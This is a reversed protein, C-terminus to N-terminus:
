FTLFRATNGILRNTSQGTQVPTQRLLERRPDFQQSLFDSFRLNPTQGGIAQQGLQGLFRSFTPQFLNSFAQQQGPLIGQPSFGEFLTRQGLPDLELADLFPNNFQSVM